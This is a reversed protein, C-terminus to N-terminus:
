APRLGGHLQQACALDVHEAERDDGRQEAAAAAQEAGQPALLAQAEEAAAGYVADGLEGIDALARAVVHLSRWVSSILPTQFIASFFFAAAEAAGEGAESLFFASSVAM